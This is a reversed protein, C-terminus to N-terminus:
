RTFKISIHTKHHNTKKLCPRVIYGLSAQFEHDELRLREPARCAHVVVSESFDRKVNYEWEALILLLLVCKAQNPM